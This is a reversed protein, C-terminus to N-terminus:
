ALWKDIEHQLEERFTKTKPLLCGNENITVSGYVNRLGDVGALGGSLGSLASQSQQAGLLGLPSSVYNKWGPPPYMAM